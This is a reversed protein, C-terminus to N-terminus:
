ELDKICRGGGGGGGDWDLGPGYIFYIIYAFLTSMLTNTPTFTILFILLHFLLLVGTTPLADIFVQIFIIVTLILVVPISWVCTILSVVLRLTPDGVRM